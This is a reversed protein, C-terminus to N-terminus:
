CEDARQHLTQRRTRLNYWLALTAFGPRSNSVTAHLSGTYTPSGRDKRLSDRLILVGCPVPSGIFKHGSVIISDVGDSFDMGPRSVPSIQALAIGSLAADAHIWRRDIAMDNLITVIRRVDDVAETLGTGVNAIVIAPRDRRLRIQEALDAYDVEDRADTRVS